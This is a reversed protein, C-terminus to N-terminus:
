ARRRKKPSTLALVVGVAGALALMRTPSWTTLSVDGLAGDDSPLCAIVGRAEVGRGIQKCGSPLIEALSEPTVGRATRMSGSAGLEPQAVPKFYTYKGDRYNFVSYITPSGSLNMGSLGDQTRSRSANERLPVDKRTKTRQLMDGIERNAVPDLAVWKGRVYVCAFVHSAGKNGDFGVLSFCADNGCSMLMSALLTAIDDCDGARTELVRVPDKVLEVGVPDKIYRIHQCTWYYCALVESAYDGQVLFRCVREVRSRVEAADKDKHAFRSMWKVTDELRPNQIVRRSTM